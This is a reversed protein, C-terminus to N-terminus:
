WDLREDWPQNALTALIPARHHTEGAPYSTSITPPPGFMAAVTRDDDSFSGRAERLHPSTPIRGARFSLRDHRRSPRQRATDSEAFAARQSDHSSRVGLENLDRAFM